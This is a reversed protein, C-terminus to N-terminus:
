VQAMWRNLGQSYLLSFVYLSFINLATERSKRGRQCHQGLTIM